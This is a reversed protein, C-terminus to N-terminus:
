DGSSSALRVRVDTVIREHGRRADELTAYWGLMELGCDNTISTWFLTPRGGFGEHSWPRGDVDIKAKGDFSTMVNVEPAVETEAVVLLQNYPDNRTVGPRFESIAGDESLDFYRYRDKV